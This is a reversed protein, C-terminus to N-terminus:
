EISVRPLNGDAQRVPGLPKREGVQEGQSPLDKAQGALPGSEGSRGTPAYFGPLDDLCRQAVCTEAVNGSADGLKKILPNDM